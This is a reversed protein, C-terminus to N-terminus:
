QSTAASPPIKENPPAGNWPEVPLMTRLLGITPISAPPVPVPYRKTPESPPTKAKPEELKKPDATGDAGALLGGVVAGCGVVVVVVVWGVDVVVVVVVPVVDGDGVVVVVVV